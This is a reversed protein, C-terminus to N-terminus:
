VDCLDMAESLSKLPDRKPIFEHAMYGKFGMDVIAKSIARYNLEQTEDIENRGPNGGTHLHGIYPLNDKMTRIVDGEMIQMHYIDYLLKFQPSGVRKVVEVGWKTHDCMYDPHNVKSNLLEMCVLMNKDEAMPMVKKLGIVCNELGEEDSMGKRNGSFVIISPAGAESGAKVVDRFRETIGAHNEKRNFGDAITTGGYIMTPVLGYNKYVPWEKPDALDVSQVNLRACEKAFDEVPIKGYCWRCVSQKIRLKRQVPKVQAAQSLVAAGLGAGAAQVFSRRDMNAM